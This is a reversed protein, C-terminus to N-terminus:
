VIPSSPMTTANEVHKQLTDQDIVFKVYTQITSSSRSMCTRHNISTTAAINNIPITINTTNHITISAEAEITAVVADAITTEEVGMTTINTTRVM